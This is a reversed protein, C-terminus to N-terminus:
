GRWQLHLRLGILAPVLALVLSPILPMGLARLGWAILLWPLLLVPTLYALALWSILVM